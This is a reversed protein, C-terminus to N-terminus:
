IIYGRDRRLVHGFWTLRAEREREGFRGVHPARRIYENRIRDLTTVGLSFRLMRLEAVELDTEQKRTLAVTQLM